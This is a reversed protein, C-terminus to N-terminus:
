RLWLAEADAAIDWPFIDKNPGDFIQLLGDSELVKSIKVLVGSLSPYFEMEHLRKRLKQFHRETDGENKV